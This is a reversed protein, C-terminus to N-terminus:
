MDSVKELNIAELLKGVLLGFPPMDYIFKPINLVTQAKKVM